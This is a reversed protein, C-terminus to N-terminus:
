SSIIRGGAQAPQDETAIVRIPTLGLKKAAADFKAPAETGGALNSLSDAKKDLRTTASDSPAITILIHHLSLTDGKKADLRIIHYGFQTLVPQSIEGVKLADAAKTFEAVYISKPHKGLDGGNKGGASDASERNAVDEFKAGKVIEARLLAAKAKAAASDAASVVRPIELVSLVARGPHKFEDRHKDFYARLDSESIGKAAASDTSPRFAVFTATVSDNQDRWVRWLDAESVYVGAAVQDFLKQRPIDSRYFQELGLLLNSQKAYSSALYRHYKDIDFRGNTMLEPKNMIWDPPQERAYMRIEDDTVVIRRRQYEQGLLVEMVMQDFVQNEIQRNDDQTLSRGPARQLEQQIQQQVRAQYDTYLIERGNVVAVATTPTIATRGLLGSTQVLLFGGVFALAVLLWVYKALSRM